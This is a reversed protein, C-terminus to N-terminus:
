FLPSGCSDVPLGKFCNFMFSIVFTLSDNSFCFISFYFFFLSSLNSSICAHQCDKFWKYTENLRDSVSCFFFSLVLLVSPTALTHPLQTGVYVFVITQLRNQFNRYRLLHKGTHAIVRSQPTLVHHRPHFSLGGIFPRLRQDSSTDVLKTEKEIENTRREYRKLDLDTVGNM